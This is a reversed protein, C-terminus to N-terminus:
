SLCAPCRSRMSIIWFDTIRPSSGKTQDTIALIMRVRNLRWHKNRVSTQLSAELTPGLIQFSIKVRATIQLDACRLKIKVNLWLNGAYRFFIIATLGRFFNLRNHLYISAFCYQSDMTVLLIAVSLPTSGM